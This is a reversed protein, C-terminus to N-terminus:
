LRVVGAAPLTEPVKFAQTLSALVEPAAKAKTITAMADGITTRGTTLGVTMAITEVIAKPTGLHLVHDAGLLAEWHQRLLPSTGNSSGTPILFYVDYIKKAEEVIDKTPIDGQLTDGFVREVLDKRVEDYTHEDGVIFLIGKRNRKENCDISTHRAFFYLALEYSEQNTGGGGGELYLNSIDEDMEIGSEFQGIQLPVSDSRADGVGAFLIQPHEAFKHTLMYDMLRPLEAQIQRPLRSMSGTVDLVIGIALSTPHDKSDRSERIKIGHPELRAHAKREAAPKARVAVDHAFTPTATVAREHERATYFDNSWSSGGM